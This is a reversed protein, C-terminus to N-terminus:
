RGYSNLADQRINKYEDKVGGLSELSEGLNSFQSKIAEWPTALNSEVTEFPSTEEAERAIPRKEAVGFTSLSWFSFIMLTVGGSVAFAFRKKHKDSKDPLSALYTRM